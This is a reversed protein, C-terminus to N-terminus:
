RSPPPNPGLVHECNNGPGVERAAPSLIWEHQEEM